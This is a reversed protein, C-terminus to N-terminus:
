LAPIAAITAPITTTAPYDPVLPPAEVVPLSSTADSNSSSTSTADTVTPTTSATPIVPPTSSSNANNPNGSNTLDPSPNQQSAGSSNSASSSVSIPTTPTAAASLLAALQTKTVCVPNLDNASDSICLKGVTAAAASLSDTNTTSANTPPFTRHDEFKGSFPTTVCTIRRM